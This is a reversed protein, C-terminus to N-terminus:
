KGYDSEYHNGYTSSASTGGDNFSQGRSNFCLPPQIEMFLLHLLRVLIKVSLGLTLATGNASLVFQCAYAFAIGLVVKRALNNEADIPLNDSKEEEPQM